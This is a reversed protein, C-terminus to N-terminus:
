YIGGDMFEQLWPTKETNINKEKIFKEIETRAVDDTWGVGNDLLVGCEDLGTYNVQGLEVCRELLKALRLEIVSGHDEYQMMDDIYNHYGAHALLETMYEPKCGIIRTSRQEGGINMRHWTVFKQTKLMEPMMGLVDERLVSVGSIKLAYNQQHPGKLVHGKRQGTGTTRGDRCGLLSAQMFGLAM